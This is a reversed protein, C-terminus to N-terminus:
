TDRLNVDGKIKKEAIKIYVQCQSVTKAYIDWRYSLHHCFNWRTRLFNEKIIHPPSHTARTKEREVRDKTTTVTQTSQQYKERLRVALLKYKFGLIFCLLSRCISYFLGPFLLLLPIPCLHSVLWIYKHVSYFFMLVSWWPCSIPRFLDLSSIPM